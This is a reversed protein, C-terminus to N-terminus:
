PKPAATEKAKKDAEYKAQLAANLKQGATEGPRAEFLKPYDISRYTLGEMDSAYLRGVNPKERMWAAMAEPVESKCSELFVIPFRM